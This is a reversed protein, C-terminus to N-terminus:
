AAAEFPVHFAYRCDQTSAPVLGARGQEEGLFYSYQGVCVGLARGIRDTTDRMVIDGRKAFPVPVPDGLWAKLTRLLTGEAKDRLIQAAGVQSDYTGRIDEVLDVGTQAYICAAAFIACDHTGWVFPEEEVRALYVGLREEWDPFRVLEKV